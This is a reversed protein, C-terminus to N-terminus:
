YNKIKYDKKVWKNRTFQFFIGCLKEQNKLKIEKM